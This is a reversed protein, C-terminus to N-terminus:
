RVEVQGIQASVFDNNTTRLPSQAGPVGYAAIPALTEADYVVVELILPGIYDPDDLALTYVNLAQNLALDDIPWAATQFHRDNLLPKDQQALLVGEPSRLRLSVKYNVETPALQSFHLTAWAAEGPSLTQSYALGDLLLAQDFNVEIPALHDPLSFPRSSLRYWVVRYGAFQAEGQFEGGQKQLLYPLVGRPDTDSRWWTVWYLRDRGLAERNLVDAATHIDVFFYHTPAPIRDAYYHFPHPADVLVLDDPTTEQALWATVGEADDKFYAPDTFYSYLGIVFILSVILGLGHTWKQTTLSLALLLFIPPTALMLYRPEYSPQRQLVLFYLAMPLLLWALLFLARGDRVPGAARLQPVRLQPVRLQPVRLQSVRLQPVRLQTILGLLFLVALLWLYPRAREADITLGLTYAQWNHAIFYSLTPPKLNPNTYTTAQQLALPLQPAFLLLIALQAGLWPWLRRGWTSVKVGKVQSVFWALWVLNEFCLLFVTFYHTYLSATTFLIYGIVYRGDLCRNFIPQPLVGLESSRVGLSSRVGFESSQVRFESSQVRTVPRPSTLLLRWLYYVSATAFFAVMAYMRVEQAYALYFPSLAVLLGAWGGVWVGGLRYGFRIILAATLLGFGLSFYRLAFKSQGALSM